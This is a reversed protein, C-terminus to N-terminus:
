PLEDVIADVSSRIFLAAVQPIIANGAGRNLVMPKPVGYAMLQIGPKAPRMTRGDGADILKHQEWFSGLDHCGRLAGQLAEWDSRQGWCPSYAMWYLRQRKQPSGVCAGCLDAAATHYGLTELDACVGALWNRGLESQTQEGFLIPPQHQKVHNFFVPWL